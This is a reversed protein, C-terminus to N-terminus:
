GEIKMEENELNQVLRRYFYITVAFSLVETIPVAWWLMMLQRFIESLLVFAGVIFVFQRLINILLTYRSHRLAQMSTSRIITYAAFPLSLCCIRLAPDGIELMHQSASFLQLIVEPIIELVVMVIVMLSVTWVTALRMTEYVRDMQHRAHNFSLIPVMGNNMGFLPMFCFGQLKLWIGYVATATTSYGMLILNVCFSTASNLGITIMSPIGIRFIEKAMDHRYAIDRWDLDIWRNRRINLTMAIIAAFIQGSVTAWAAGAIGLRPFGFLGFILIPDFIINFIAGSAQSIMAYISHGTCVLMKEFYQGSFVGASVCWIITLYTIGYSAIQADQTLAHYLPKVVTFGMIMFVLFFIINLFIGTHAVDNAGKINHKAIYRPVLASIGVGIGVAIAHAVQQMPFALSVATLANENITAVFMSDVINYLAQIFFSIMMPLSMNLLLKGVPM